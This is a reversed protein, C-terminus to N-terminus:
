FIPPLVMTCDALIVYFCMWFLTRAVFIITRTARVKIKKSQV